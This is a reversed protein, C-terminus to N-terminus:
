ESGLKTSNSAGRGRKAAEGGASGTRWRELRLWRALFGRSAPHALLGAHVVNSRGLALDLQEGSLGRVRVPVPKEAGAARTLAGELKSVGDAAADSAQVLAALRGQELAAEVKAFGFVVRGAKNALSLSDLASRELLHEVRDALDAAAAGKGKFARAFANSRLAAALAERTATIWAGRGPLNGALDPVIAGDPGVVFRMLEATPKVERSALCFREPMRRAPGKDTEEVATEALV